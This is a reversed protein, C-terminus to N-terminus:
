VYSHLNVVDNEAALKEKADELEKINIKLKKENMEFGSMAKSM